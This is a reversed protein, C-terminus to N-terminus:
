RASAGRVAIAKNMADIPVAKSPRGFLGEPRDGAPDRGRGRVSRARDARVRGQRRGQGQLTQRVDAPITIQGKSTVTATSMAHTGPAKSKRDPSQLAEPSVNHQPDSLAGGGFATSAQPGAKLKSDGRFIASSVVGRFCATTRMSHLALLSWPSQVNSLTERARSDRSPILTSFTAM